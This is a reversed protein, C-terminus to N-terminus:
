DDNDPGASYLAAKMGALQSELVDVREVLQRFAYNDGIHDTIALVAGIADNDTLDTYGREHLESRLLAAIASARQM